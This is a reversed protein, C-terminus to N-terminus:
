ILTIVTNLMRTMQYGAHYASPSGLHGLPLSDAQCNLLCLLCLNSEQTLFIGQLLFRCSAGTSKGPFDWPCLLRTPEVPDCFSLYSQTVSRAHARTCVCVCVCVCVIHMLSFIVFYKLLEETDERLTRSALVPLCFNNTFLNKFIYSSSLIELM